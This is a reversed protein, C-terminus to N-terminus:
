PTTVIWRLAKSRKPYMEGPGAKSRNSRAEKSREQVQRVKWLSSRDYKGRECPHMPGKGLTAHLSQVQRAGNPRAEKCQECPHMPGKGQTAHSEKGSCTNRARLSSGQWRTKTIKVKFETGNDPKSQEDNKVRGTGSGRFKPFEKHLNKPREGCPGSRRPGKSRTGNAVKSQKEETWYIHPMICSVNRGKGKKM